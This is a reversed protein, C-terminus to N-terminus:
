AISNVAAALELDGETVGSNPANGLRVTVGAADVFAFLERGSKEAKRAVKNLFAASATFSAQPFHREIANPTEDVEWGKIEGRREHLREPTVPTFRGQIREPKM